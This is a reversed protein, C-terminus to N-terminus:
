SFFTRIVQSISGRCIPCRDCASACSQCCVVHGCPAFVSNTPNDVCIQCAGAPQEERQRRRERQEASIESLAGEIIRRLDDLQDDECVRLLDASTPALGGSVRPFRAHLQQLQGLLCSLRTEVCPQQPSSTADCEIRTGPSSADNRRAETSEEQLEEVNEYGDDDDEDVENDNEDAGFEAEVERLLQREEELSLRERAIEAALRESRFAYLLRLINQDCRHKAIGAATHGGADSVEPDCGQTLLYALVEEHGGLAAAIIPRVAGDRTGNVDAGDQILRRVSALDGLACAAHLLAM